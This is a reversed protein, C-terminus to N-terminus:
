SVLRACHRRWRRPWSGDGRAGYRLRGVDERRNVKRQTWHRANIPVKTWKGRGGDADAKWDWKWCVWRRLAKLEAPINDANVQMRAPKAEGNGLIESRNLTATSMAGGGEGGRLRHLSVM